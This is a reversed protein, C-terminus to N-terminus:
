EGFEVKVMYESDVAAGGVRSPEFKGLMKVVRIAEENCGYGLGSGWVKHDATEGNSKVTFGVNVVGKVNNKRAEEPYKVNSRIFKEMETKSGGPWRAELARPNPQDKKVPTEAPKSEQAAPPGQENTSGVDSSGDDTRVPDKERTDAQNNSPQEDAKRSKPNSGCGYQVISFAIAFILAKSISTREM